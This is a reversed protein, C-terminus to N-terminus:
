WGRRAGGGPVLLGYHFRLLMAAYSGATAARLIMDGLGAARAGAAVMFRVEQESFGGEPGAVLAAGAPTADPLVDSYSSEKEEEWLVVSFGCPGLQREGPVGDLLPGVEMRWARRAVMSAERSIRAWRDLRGSAGAAAPGSRESMFPVVRGVGAEAARLVAEDMTSHKSVAQFLTVFPIEAEVLVPEGLSAEVADRSVSTLVAPYIAGRGDGALLADGERARAARAIHRADEGAFLVAGGRIVTGPSDLYYIPLSM